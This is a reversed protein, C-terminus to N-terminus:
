GATEDGHRLIDLVIWEPAPDHAKAHETAWRGRAEPTEFPIEGIIPAPFGAEPYCSRCIILHWVKRGGPAPDPLTTVELSFATLPRNPEGDPRTPCGACVTRLLSWADEVCTFKLAQDPDRTFTAFGSPYPPNPAPPIFHPDATALYRGDLLRLAIM